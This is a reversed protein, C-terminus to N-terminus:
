RKKCLVVRSAEYSRPGQVSQVDFTGGQYVFFDTSADVDTGWPLSFTWDQLETQQGAREGESGTAPQALCSVTGVASPVLSGGGYGDSSRSNRYIVVTSPMLDNAAQRMFDLQFAGLGSM